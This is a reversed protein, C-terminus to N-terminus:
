HPFYIIEVRRNEMTEEATEGQVLPQSEGLGFTKIKFQEKTHAKLFNAVSQARQKSLALNYGTSGLQDTHGNIELRGTKNGFHQLWQQLVLKAEDKLDAHDFDFLVAGSFRYRAASGIAAIAAIDAGPTTSHCSEKLDTLRVYSFREGKKVFADIDLSATAGAVKGINIWDYGNVSIDVRTAEVNPGVEFIYLDPGQVDILVNDVFRVVLVGGCGLTLSPQKRSVPGLALTAANNSKGSAAPSGESFSVVADAFSRKELVPASSAMVLPIDFMVYVLFLLTIAPTLM